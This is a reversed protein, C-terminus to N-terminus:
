AAVTDPEIAVDIEGSIPAAEEVGLDAVANKCIGGDRGRKVVVGPYDEFLFKLIPYLQLGTMGIDKGIEDALKTAAIREGPLIADIRAAAKEYLPRLRANLVNDIHTKSNM